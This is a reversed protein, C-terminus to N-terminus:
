ANEDEVFAFNRRRPRLELDAGCHRCLSHSKSCSPCLVDTCTNAFLMEEGCLGCPRSTVVAGGIRGVLYFCSRCEGKQLREQRRLDEAAERARSVTEELHHLARDTKAVVHYRDIHVPLQKVANEQFTKGSQLNQWRINARREGKAAPQSNCCPDM